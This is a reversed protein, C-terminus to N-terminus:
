GSLSTGVDWTSSGSRAKMTPSHSRSASSHLRRSIAITRTFMGVFEVSLVVGEFLHHDTQGIARGERSVITNLNNAAM